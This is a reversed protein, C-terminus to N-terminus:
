DAKRSARVTTCPEPCPAVRAGCAVVNTIRTYRGQDWSQPVQRAKSPQPEVTPQSSSRKATCWRLLVTHYSAVTAKESHCYPQNAHTDRIHIPSSVPFSIPSTPTEQRAGASWSSAPNVRIVRAPVHSAGTVRPHTAAACQECPGGSAGRCTPQHGLCDCRRRLRPPVPVSGPLASSASQGTATM